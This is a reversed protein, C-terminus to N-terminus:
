KYCPMSLVLEIIGMKSNSFNFCLVTRKLISEWSKKSFYWFWLFTSLTIYVRYVRWRSEFNNVNAVNIKERCVCIYVVGLYGCKKGSGMMSWKFNKWCKDRFSYFILMDKIYWIVIVSFFCHFQVTKCPHASTFEFYTM